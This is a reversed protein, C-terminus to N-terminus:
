YWGVVILLIADVSPSQAPLEAPNPYAPDIANAAVQNRQQKAADIVGGSM